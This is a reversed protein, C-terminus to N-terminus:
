SQPNLKEDTSHLLQRRGIYTAIALEGSSTASTVDRYSGLFFCGVKCGTVRSSVAGNERTGGEGSEGKIGGIIWVRRATGESGDM